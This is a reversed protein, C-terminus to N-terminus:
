TGIVVRGDDGVVLRHPGPASSLRADRGVLSHRLGRVGSLRAGDLLVSDAVGSGDVLCGAGIATHPGVVSDRVVAGAGVILPGTLRSRVIRAGAEVVVPGGVRSRADVAGAIRPELAGLLARNCDLLDAVRGADKWYGEHRHAQVRLGRDVMWQLADTIELEGRASPRIARVARHVAPSFVYAGAVALDGVPERSKEVLRRVRGDPGNVAVGYEAPDAVKQVTIMADPRVAAYADTLERIGPLFVNDGLYLVFDDEGLFDEAILVCHALGAPREQPICTIRLGFASGDGVAERIQEGREGVVIGVEQVGTAALAELGYFLVPRNAVPILQKALSHSFPRLRTGTGGALVLAKMTM